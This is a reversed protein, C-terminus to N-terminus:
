PITLLFKLLCQFLFQSCFLGLDRMDAWKLLHSGNRLVIFLYYIDIDIAM